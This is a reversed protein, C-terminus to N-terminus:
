QSIIIVQVDYFGEEPYWPFTITENTCKPAFGNTTPYKSITDFIINNKYKIQFRDRTNGMSLSYTFPFADTTVAGLYVKQEVIIKGTNDPEPMSGKDRFLWSSFKSNSCFHSTRKIKVSYEYDWYKWPFILNSTRRVFNQTPPFVTTIIPNDQYGRPPLDPKEKPFNFYKYECINVGSPILSINKLSDPPDEPLYVELKEFTNGRGLDYEVRVAGQNEGIYHCRHKVLEVNDNTITMFPLGEVITKMQTDTYSIDVMFVAKESQLNFSINEVMLRVRDLFTAQQSPYQFVIASARAIIANREQSNLYIYSKGSAKDRVEFTKTNAVYYYYRSSSPPYIVSTMKCPESFAPLLNRKIPAVKFPVLIEHATFSMANKIDFPLNITDILYEKDIGIKKDYILIKRNEELTYIPVTSCQIKKALHSHQFLQYEAHLNAQTMNYIKSDNYEKGAIGILESRFDPVVNFDLELWQNEKLTYTYKVKIDQNIFKTGANRALYNVTVIDTNNLYTDFIILGKNDRNTITPKVLKGNLYVEARVTDFIQRSVSYEKYNTGEVPIALESDISDPNIKKVYFWRTGKEGICTRSYDPELILQATSDELSTATLNYALDPYYNLRILGLDGTNIGTFNPHLLNNAVYFQEVTNKNTWIYSRPQSLFNRQYREERWKVLGKFQEVPTNDFEEFYLGEEQATRPFDFKCGDIIERIKQPNNIHVIDGLIQDHIFPIEIKDYTTFIRRNLFHRLYKNHYTSKTQYGSDTIKGFVTVRNKVNTFDIEINKDITLDEGRRMFNWIPVENSGDKIPRAIFKDGKWFMERGLYLSLLTTFLGAITEGPAATIEYPVQEDLNEILIDNLNVNGLQNLTTKMAQGITIGEALIATEINLTGQLTGDFLAMKDAISCSMTIGEHSHSFNLNLFVFLGQEFWRIDKIVPDQIGASIRVFSNLWIKAKESPLYDQYNILVLDISGMRRSSSDANGSISGGYAVGELIDIVANNKIIEFKMYVKRNPQTFLANLSLM